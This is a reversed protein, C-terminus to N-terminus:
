KKSWKRSRFANRVGIFSEDPHTLWVLRYAKGEHWLPETKFYEFGSSDKAEPVFSLGSLKKVLEVILADNMHKGHRTEYYPDIVITTVKRANVHLRVPYHRRM